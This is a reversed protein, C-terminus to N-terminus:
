LKCIFSLDSSWICLIAFHVHLFSVHFFHFDFFVKGFLLLFRTL